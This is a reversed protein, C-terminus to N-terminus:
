YGANRCMEQYRRWDQMMTLPKMTNPLLSYRAYNFNSEFRGEANRVMHQFDLTQENNEKHSVWELNVARNDTRDCNKHNVCAKQEPNPIFHQAVLRHIYKDVRKNTTENRMYVRLYGNKTPRGKIEYMPVTRDTKRRNGRGLNCYVKGDDSIFYGKFDSIEKIMHGRNYDNFTRRSSFNRQAQNDM